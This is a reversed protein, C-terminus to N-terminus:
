PRAGRDSPDSTDSPDSMTRIGRCEPYGSCGWFPRGAHPGQQATRRSMGKGCLPCVPTDSGDSKDSADAQAAARAKVRSAYLRETFGGHELFDRSQQEIQRRLLYAAQNVACLMANAALEPEAKGVFDSLGALGTLQVTGEPAPPLNPTADHTLRERMALAEPSDKHWVRLGRQILFSKFDKALEDSLSARAVNTLKMETKRSTAAAGSGESINRVGSRAAQVMQDHTRSRKEIFRDCFVVTADYIAEAVKYSRLKEYGGHPLLVGASASM